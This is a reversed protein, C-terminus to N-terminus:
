ADVGTESHAVPADRDAIATARWPRFPAFHIRGRDPEAVTLGAAIGVTSTLDPQHQGERFRGAPMQPDVALAILRRCADSFPQRSRGSLGFEPVAYGWLGPAVERGREIRIM